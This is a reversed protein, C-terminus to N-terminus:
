NLLLPYTTFMRNPIDVTINKGEAWWRLTSKSKVTDINEAEEDEEAVGGEDEDEDEDQYMDSEEHITPLNDDQDEPEELSSVDSILLPDQVQVM